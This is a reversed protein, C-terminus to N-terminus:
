GPRHNVMRTIQEARAEVDGGVTVVDVALEDADLLAELAEAVAHRHELDEHAALAIRDPEEIPVHVVLDLRRMTSRSHEVLHEVDDGLVTLYALLDAPCRDFLTDERSREIEAISRLLQLEFDHTSPPWGFEHGDEELLHYPEDVTTYTPLTSSVQEVLSTKGVRHTGSFAIRVM